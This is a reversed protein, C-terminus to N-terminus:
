ETQSGAKFAVFRRANLTRVGYFEEITGEILYPGMGLHAMPKCNSPFISVDFLGWEDELTVFQVEKGDKTAAHRGTAVLGAMRVKQGFKTHMSRSDEVNRPLFPRFLQMFPPGVLFGLGEWEKERQRSLSPNPPTWDNFGDESYLSSTQSSPSAMEVELILATRSQGTFDMAGVQVLSALAEPGIPVRRCFEAMSQFPGHRERDALILERAKEDLHRIAAFGTRIGGEELAFAQQSRNVCPLFVPIGARKIAEIYVRRPYMGQNNNLAAVWFCTPHHVKLYAAEWAILGYSVAHSKCFSYSNFKALQVWVEKAVEVSIGNHRCADLFARSVTITEETSKINTIQKRFRDAESAPFGTL